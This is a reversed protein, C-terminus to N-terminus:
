VGICHWNLEAPTTEINGSPAQARATFGSTSVSSVSWIAGNWAAGGSGLSVIVVPETTFPAAFTVTISDGAVVTDQGPGGVGVMSVRGAIDKSSAVLTATIDPNSFAQGSLTPVSGGAVLHRNFTADGSVSLEGTISQNSSLFTGNVTLDQLTTLGSVDLTGALSLNSMSLTGNVTLDQLTTLGTVDLTGSMTASALTSFGSVGLGGGGVTAAALTALGSVGVPVESLQARGVCCSDRRAHDGGVIGVSGTISVNNLNTLGAVVLTSSVSAAALRQPALSM